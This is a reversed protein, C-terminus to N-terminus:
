HKAPGAPAPLVVAELFRALDPYATSHSLSVVTAPEQAANMLHIVGDARHIPLLGEASAGQSTLWRRMSLANPVLEIDHIVITHPGFIEHREYFIGSGLRQLFARFPPPLRHGFAAELRRLDEESSPGGTTHQSGDREFVDLIEPLTMVTRGQPLRAEDPSRLSPIVTM